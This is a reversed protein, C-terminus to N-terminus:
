ELVVEVGTLDPDDAYKASTTIVQAERADSFTVLSGPPAVVGAPTHLTTSSVVESADPGRVLRVTDDVLCAVPTPAGYIPGDGGSGGYAEIIVTQDYWDDWIM